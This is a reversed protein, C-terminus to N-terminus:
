IFNSFFYFLFFVLIFYKDSVIKGNNIKNEEKTLKGLGGDLPNAWNTEDVDLEDTNLELALANVFSSSFVVSKFQQVTESLKRNELLVEEMRSIFTGVENVIDKKNQSIKQNEDLLQSINNSLAGYNKLVKDMEELAKKTNNQLHFYITFLATKKSIVFDKLKLFINFYM